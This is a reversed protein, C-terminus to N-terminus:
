KKKTKWAMQMHEAVFPAPVVGETAYMFLAGRYVQSLVGMLYAFVIMFAIWLPLAVFAITASQMVVSLAIFAILLLVSCVGVLMSALQIGVYGALSEGWTKRLIGASTKLILLPNANKEDRVIVPITFVTAVAWAVGVLKLILRGVLGVREELFKIALGVIGTLLSWMVIAKLRAVAFRLGGAISVPQGNLAHIIENFFAVNFFTALFVSVLYLAAVIAYGTWRLEVEAGGGTENLNFIASGLAQWHAAETLSHGTNWFALPTVILVLVVITFVSTLCPFLLLKKNATVVQLACKFLEWSRQLRGM